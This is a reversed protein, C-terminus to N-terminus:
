QIRPARFIHAVKESEAPSYRHTVEGTLLDAAVVEMREKGQMLWWAYCTAGEGDSAQNGPTDGIKVIHYVLM